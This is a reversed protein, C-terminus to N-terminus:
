DGRKFNYLEDYLPMITGGPYGFVTRVGEELLTLILAETGRIERKMIQNM